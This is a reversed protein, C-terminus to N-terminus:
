HKGLAHVRSTDQDVIAMQSRALERVAGKGRRKAEADFLRAREEVLSSIEHVIIRDFVSNQLTALGELYFAQREFAVTPAHYSTNDLIGDISRAIPGRDVLLNQVLSRVQPTATKQLALLSLSVIQADNSRVHVLFAQDTTNLTSFAFFLSIIATFM